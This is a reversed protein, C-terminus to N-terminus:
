GPKAGTILNRFVGPVFTSLPNVSIDPNEIPGEVTYTPAFVGGGEEGVLLDGILPIKGLVSNLAYFPVISGALKIKDQALDINGNATVGIASGNAAVKTLTLVNSAYTFDGDMADFTIGKGQLSDVLGLLSAANLVRAALPANVIRFNEIHATGTFPQSYAHDDVTGQVKMKGERMDGYLDIAALFRGADDATLQVKRKGDALPEVQAFVNATGDLKGNLVISRWEEGEVHISGKLKKVVQDRAALLEDVDLYIEMKGGQRTTEQGIGGSDPGKNASKAKEDADSPKAPKQSSRSVLWPRADFRAAKVDIESDDNKRRYTIRGDEIVPTEGKAYFRSAKLNIDIASFEGGMGTTSAAGDMRSDSTDATPEKAVGRATLFPRLDLQDGALDIKLASANNVVFTGSVASNERFHANAINFHLKDDLANDGRWYGSALIAVDPATLDVNRVKGGGDATFLIDFALKSPQGADKHYDAEKLDMVSNALDGKAIVEVGGARIVRIEVDGDAKGSLFSSVDIGIDNLAALDFTGGIQYHSTLPTQGDFSEVWNITNHGTGIAADGSLELGKTNVQLEFNGDKLSLNRFAKKVAVKELRSAAAVKVDDFSLDSLLPFSLEVRTAQQGSLQGPDIQLKKAFGLPEHDILKLADRVGGHAVFEIDAWENDTDLKSFVLKASDVTIGDAVGKDVFISFSSADFEARGAAKQVKPMGPLYQVDIDSMTMDGKIHDIAAAGDDGRHMALNITAVQVGGGSLNKIVWDRPNDGLTEPWLNNLDDTAVDTAEATLQVAWNGLPHDIESNVKIGTKGTTVSVNRFVLKGPQYQVTAQGGDIDYVSNLPTPLQVRGAGVDLNAVIDFVSGDAGLDADFTGSVPLDFRDLGIFDSSITSLSAPIVKGIHAKLAIREDHTSYSATATLDTTLAGANISLKMDADIGGPRRALRIQSKPASWTVGLLRDEVRLDADYIGFSEFYAAAPFDAAEGSLIAVVRRMLASGSVLEQETEDGADGANEADAAGEVESKGLQGAQQESGSESDVQGAEPVPPKAADARTQADDAREDGADKRTVTTPGPAASVEPQGTKGAEPIPTSMVSTNAPETPQQMDPVRATTQDAGQNVGEAGKNQTPAIEALDTTLGFDLQGDRHRILRLRPAILDVERLAFIGKFLARSSFVVDAAPMRLMEHGDMQRVSIQRMRVDFKEEWGRWVLVMDQVDFKLDGSSKNLEELIYPAIFNLSVPGQSVRWILVGSFVGVFLACFAFLAAIIGSLKKVHRM